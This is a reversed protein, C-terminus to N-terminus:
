KNPIQADQLLGHAKDERETTQFRITGVLLDFLPLLFNLNSENDIHHIWHHNNIFSFWSQWEILPHAGPRHITDHVSIFLESFVISWFLTSITFSFSYTLYSPIIVLILAFSMYFGMHQLRINRNIYPNTQIKSDMSVRKPPGTSTYKGTPFQHCHHVIHHIKYIHQLLIPFSNHYVYKHVIWEMMSAVLFTYVFGLLLAYGISVKPIIYLIGTCIWIIFMTSIFIRVKPPYFM